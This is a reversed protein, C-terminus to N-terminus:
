KGAKRRRERERMLVCVIDSALEELDKGTALFEDADDMEGRRLTLIWLGGEKKSVKEFADAAFGGSEIDDATARRVNVIM